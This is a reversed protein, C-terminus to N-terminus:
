ESQWLWTPATVHNSQITDGPKLMLSVNIGTTAANQAVTGGNVTVTGGTGGYMYVNVNYPFTNTAATGPGPYAPTVVAPTKSAVGANYTILGDHIESDLIYAQGQYNQGVPM